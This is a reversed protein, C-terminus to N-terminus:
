LWGKRKFFLYPLIASLVMLVLAFPYGFPWDLEPMLAFNMGYISAILTPPLFVVAAVSFIKIIANQEINVMGLVAELLFTIKNALFTSNDTISAIDSQLTAIRTKVEKGYGQEKALANLFTALRSLTALSERTKSNHNGRRGLRRLIAKYDQSAAPHKGPREFVGHSIDDVEAAIRELLDAMRDVVTELIGILVREARIYGSGPRQCRTAFIAFSRPESHRVTILRKRALIFTVPASTPKDDDTNSLLLATMFHAGDESYLRSSVEIEQMDEPGPVEVRLRKKVQEEEGPAPNLLDIWVAAAPIPKGEGAKVLKRGKVIYSELM